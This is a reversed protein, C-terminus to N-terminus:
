LMHVLQKERAGFGLMLLFDGVLFILYVLEYRFDIRFTSCYAVTKYSGIDAKIVLEFGM